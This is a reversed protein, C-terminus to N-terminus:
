KRILPALITPSKWYACDPPPAVSCIRKELRTFGAERLAEEHDPSFEEIEDSYYTLTGNPQLLRFAEKFFPFHNTHIEGETLPYTDFLIGTISGDRLSPTIEEWFGLLPTVNCPATQSFALLKEYVARNAEIVIHEEIPFRQIYGASIGMGFGVELVTGGGQAAITALERMYGDEWDEM